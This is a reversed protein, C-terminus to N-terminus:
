LVIERKGIQFASFNCKPNVALFMSNQSNQLRIARFRKSISARNLPDGAPFPMAFRITLKQDCLLRHRQVVQFTLTRVGIQKPWSYRFRSSICARNCRLM